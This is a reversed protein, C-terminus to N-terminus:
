SSSVISAIAAQAAHRSRRIGVREYFRITEVNVGTQKSIAGITLASGRSVTIAPM